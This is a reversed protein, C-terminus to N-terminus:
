DLAIDLIQDAFMKSPKMRWSDAKDWRWHVGVAAVALGLRRGESGTHVALGAGEELVSYGMNMGQGMVVSGKATDLM